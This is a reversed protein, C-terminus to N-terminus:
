CGVLPFSIAIDKNSEIHAVHLHPRRTLMSPEHIKLRHTGANARASVDWVAVLGGLGYSHGGYIIQRSLKQKGRGEEEFVNRNGELVGTVRLKASIREHAGQRRGWQSLQERFAKM